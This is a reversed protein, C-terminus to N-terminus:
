LVTPARLKAKGEGQGSILPGVHASTGAWSRDVGSDDPAIIVPLCSAPSLGRFEGCGNRMPWSSGLGLFFFSHKHSSCPALLAAVCVARPLFGVPLGNEPLIGGWHKSPEM